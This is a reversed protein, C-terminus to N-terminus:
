TKAQPRGASTGVTPGLVVLYPTVGFSAFLNVRAVWYGSIQVLSLWHLHVSKGGGSETSSGVFNYLDDREGLLLARLESVDIADLGREAIAFCFGIKAVTLGFPTHDHAHRTNVTCSAFTRPRPIAVEQIRFGSLVGGREVGALRGPPLLQVMSFMPPYQALELELTFTASENEAANERSVPPFRKKNKKHRRDLELLLRPVLLDKQLAANEYRENSRRQCPQCAANKFILTGNLAFPVIHEQTLQDEPFPQSCYICYGLGPYIKSQMTTSPKM